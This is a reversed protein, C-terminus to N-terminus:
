QVPETQGVVVQADQGWGDSVEDVESLKIDALVTLM